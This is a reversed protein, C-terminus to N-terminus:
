LNRILIVLITIGISFLFAGFMGGILDLMWNRSGRKAAWLLLFGVGLCVLMVLIRM